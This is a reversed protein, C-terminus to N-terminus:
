FGIIDYYTREEITKFIAKCILHAFYFFYQICHTEVNEGARDQTPVQGRGGWGKPLTHQARGYSLGAGPEGM